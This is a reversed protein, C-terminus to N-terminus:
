RTLVAFGTIEKEKKNTNHIKMKKFGYIRYNRETKTQTTSRPM